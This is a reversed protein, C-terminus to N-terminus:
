DEGEEVAEAVAEPPAQLWKIVGRTEGVFVSYPGLWRRAFAAMREHKRPTTFIVLADDPNRAGYRAFSESLVPLLRALRGLEPRIYASTIRIIKDELQHNVVWGVIQGRARLAVSTIPEIERPSSRWPILDEPIWGGEEQSAQLAELEEAKMDHWPIIEYGDPLKYKDNGIWPAQRMSAVTFRLTLMRMVPEEWGANALLREAAAAAPRGSMYVTELAQYGRSRLEDQLATLIQTALGRKRLSQSVFISLLEPFREDDVPLEVLGMGLVVPMERHIAGFALPQVPMQGAEDLHRPAPELNLLHRYAPFTMRECRQAEEATFPRFDIM